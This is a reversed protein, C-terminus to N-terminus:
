KTVSMQVYLGILSKSQYSQLLIINRKHEILM